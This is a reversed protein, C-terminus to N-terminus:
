IVLKKKQHHLYSVTSISTSRSHPMVLIKLAQNKMKTHEIIFLITM